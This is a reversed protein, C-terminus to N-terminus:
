NLKYWSARLLLACTVCVIENSKQKVEHAFGNGTAKMLKVEEPAIQCGAM